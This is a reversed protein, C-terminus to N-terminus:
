SRVKLKTEEKEIDEEGRVLHIGRGMTYRYLNSKSFAFKTVPKERQTM